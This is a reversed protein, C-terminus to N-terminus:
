LGYKEMRRYLAARTLGLEKAAKSINGNHMSIAKTVAAKELESLNMGDQFDRGVSASEPQVLADAELSQGSSLIVAREICHQLERVNGPWSHRVLSKRAETTFFCDKKGYRASFIELFHDALILIDEGRERLPPLSISVTNMGYMLDERFLKKQVREHLNVNTASILRADLPMAIASGLRTWEGTQIM